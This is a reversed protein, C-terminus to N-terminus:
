KKGGKLIADAIVDGAVEGLKWLIYASMTLGAAAAATKIREQQEKSARFRVVESKPKKADVKSAM